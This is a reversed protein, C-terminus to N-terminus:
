SWVDALCQICILHGDLEFFMSWFVFRKELAENPGSFFLRFRYIRLCDCRLLIPGDERWEVVLLWAVSVLGFPSSKGGFMGIVQVIGHPYVHSLYACFACFDDTLPGAM